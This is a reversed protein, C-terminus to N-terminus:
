ITPTHLALLNKRILLLKEKRKRCVHRLVVKVTLQFLLKIQIKEIIKGLEVITPTTLLGNIWHNEKLQAQNAIQFVDSTVPLQNFM